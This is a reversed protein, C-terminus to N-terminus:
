GRSTKRRLSPNPHKWGGKEGVSYIGEYEPGRRHTSVRLVRLFGAQPDLRADRRFCYENLYAQLHKESVGHHTGVLWAQLEAFAQHVSPLQRAVDADEEGEVVTHHYGAKELKNYGAWGDTVVRSGKEVHKKVFGVLTRGGANGIVRMRMKGSAGREVAGVVLPKKTGRGTPKSTQRTRRRRGGTVYTEDVEVDGWLKERDPAVMGARLKQLMMYATEYHVGLQRELVKASIGPTQTSVLWASWFWMQLSVKSRHMVTRTTASFQHDNSCRFLNRTSVFGVAPASCQPCVPGDPWRVTVLYNWCQEETAFRSQFELITRPFSPM